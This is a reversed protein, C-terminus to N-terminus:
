LRCLLELCAAKRGLKNSGTDWSLVGEACADAGGCECIRHQLGRRYKWAWMKRWRPNSREGLLGMLAFCAAECRRPDSIHCVLEEVVPEQMLETVMALEDMFDQEQMLLQMLEHVAKDRDASSGEMLM